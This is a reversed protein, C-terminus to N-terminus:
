RHDRIKRDTSSKETSSKWTHITTFGYTLTGALQGTTHLNVPHPATCETKAAEPPKKPAEAPPTEGCSRQCASRTSICEPPFKSHELCKNFQKECEDLCDKPSKLMEAPPAVDVQMENLARPQLSGRNQKCDACEDSQLGGCACQRQILSSSPEPAFPSENIAGQSVFYYPRKAADNKGAFAATYGPSTDRGVKNRMSAAVSGPDSVAGDRMIADAVRDSEREAPDDVAGVMVKRQVRPSIGAFAWLLAPNMHRSTELTGTEVLEQVARNGLARQLVDAHRRVPPVASLATPVVEASRKSAHTLSPM